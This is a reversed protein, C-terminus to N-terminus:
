IINKCNFKINVLLKGGVNKLVMEEWTLIGESTSYLRLSQNIIFNIKLFKLKLYHLNSKFYYNQLVFLPKNQWYRLYIYIYKDKITYYKILNLKAFKNLIGLYKKKYLVSAELYKLNYCNNIESFLRDM